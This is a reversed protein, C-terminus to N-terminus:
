CESLLNEELLTYIYIFINYEIISTTYLQLIIITIFTLIHIDYQDNHTCHHYKMTLCFARFEERSVSSYVGVSKIHLHDLGQHQHGGRKLM